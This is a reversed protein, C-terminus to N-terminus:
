ENLNDISYNKQEMVIKKFMTKKKLNQFKLNSMNEVVQNHHYCNIKLQNSHLALHLASHVVVLSLEQGVSLTQLCSAM